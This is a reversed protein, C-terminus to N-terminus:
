FLLFIKIEVKAVPPPPPPLPPSLNSDGRWYVLAMERLRNSYLTPSLLHRKGSSRPLPGNVRSACM